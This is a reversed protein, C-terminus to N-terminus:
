FGPRPRQGREGADWRGAWRASRGKLALGSREAERRGRWRRGAETVVPEKRLGGSVGGSRAQNGRPGEGLYGVGGEGQGRRGTRVRFLLCTRSLVHTLDPQETGFDELAAEGAGVQEGPEMEGICPICGGGGAETGKESGLADGEM